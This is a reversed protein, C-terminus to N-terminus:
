PKALPSKGVIPSRGVILSQGALPSYCRLSGLSLVDRGGEILRLPDQLTETRDKVARSWTGNYLICM